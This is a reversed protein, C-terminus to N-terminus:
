KTEPINLLGYGDLIEATRSCFSAAIDDMEAYRGIETEADGQWVPAGNDLNILQAQTSIATVVKRVGGDVTVTQSRGSATYQTGKAAARTESYTPITVTATSAGQPTIILIADIGYRQYQERKEDVTYERIPPLVRRNPHAKVGTNRLKGVMAHEFGEAVDSREHLSM